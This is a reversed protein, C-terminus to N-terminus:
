GAAFGAACGFFYRSQTISGSQRDAGLEEVVPELDAALGLEAAARGERWLAILEAEVSRCRDRGRLWGLRQCAWSQVRWGARGLPGGAPEGLEHGHHELLV